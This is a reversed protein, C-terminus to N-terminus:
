FKNIFLFNMKFPLINSNKKFNLRIDFIYSGVGGIYYDSWFLHFEKNLTVYTSLIRASNYILVINKNFICNNIWYIKFEELLHYYDKNHAVM